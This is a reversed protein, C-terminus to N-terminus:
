AKALDRGERLAREIVTRRVASRRAAGEADAVVVDIPVGLGGLAWRLRVPEEMPDVVEPEIVLLDVDSDCDGDGRALSGLLLIRSGPPVAARLGRGILGIV